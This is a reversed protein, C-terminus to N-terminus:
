DNRLASECLRLTGKPGFKLGHGNVCNGMEVVRTQSGDIPSWVRITHDSSGSFLEGDPSVALAQVTSNSRHGVLTRIHTGDSGSWMRITGDDAGSYLCEDAGIALADVSGTHGHLIRLHSGDTASWARITRDHSGSYVTDNGAIALASM